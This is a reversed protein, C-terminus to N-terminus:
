LPALAGVATYFHGVSQPAFDGDALYPMELNHLTRDQGRWISTSARRGNEPGQGDVILIGAENFGSGAFASMAHYFHHKDDELGTELTMVTRDDVHNFDVSDSLVHKLHTSALESNWSHKYRDGVREASLAYIEGSPTLLAAGGDHWTTAHTHMIGPHIENVSEASM